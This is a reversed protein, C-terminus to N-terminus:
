RVAVPAQQRDNTAILGVDGAVRAGCDDAANRYGIKPANVIDSEAQVAGSGLRARM